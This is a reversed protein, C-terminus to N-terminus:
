KTMTYKLLGLVLGACLYNHVNHVQYHAQQSLSLVLDAFPDSHVYKVIAKGSGAACFWTQVFTVSYETYEVWCHSVSKADPRCLPLSPPPVVHVLSKLNRTRLWAGEM